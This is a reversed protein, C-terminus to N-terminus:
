PQSIKVWFFDVIVPVDRFSSVSVGINGEPLLYKNEDLTRVENGNVYLSLSNGQCVIGYENEAMGSSIKASGGDAIYSYSVTQDPQVKAYLIEYLGNNAIDFEYWGADSKRCILSVNNNNSGRNAVKVDLRVNNYTFPQYIAYIWAGKGQLDFSLLGGVQRISMLGVIGDVIQSRAGNIAIYKWYDTNADFEETYFQQAGPFTQEPLITPTTEVVSEPIVTTQTSQASSPAPTATGYLDVSCALSVMTIVTFLFMFPNQPKFKM